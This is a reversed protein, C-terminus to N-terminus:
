ILLPTLMIAPPSARYRLSMQPSHQTLLHEGCGQWSWSCRRHYPQPPEWCIPGPATDGPKQGASMALQLNCNTLFIAGVMKRRSKTKQRNSM